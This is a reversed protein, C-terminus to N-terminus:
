LDYRGPYRALWGRANPLVQRTAEEFMQDPGQNLFVQSFTPEGPYDYDGGNAFLVEVLGDGNIDALEVKNTWEKTAGITSKTADDWLNDPDIAASRQAPAECTQESQQTACGVLPLTIVIILM